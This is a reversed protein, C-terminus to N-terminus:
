GIIQWPLFFCWRLVLSHTECHLPDFVSLCVAPQLHINVAVTVEHQKDGQGRTVVLPGVIMVQGTRLCQYSLFSLFLLFSSAYHLSKDSLVAFSHNSCSFDHYGSIFDWGDRTGTYNVSIRQCTTCASQPVCTFRHWLSIQNGWRSSNIRAASLVVCLGTLCKLTVSHLKLTLLPYVVM